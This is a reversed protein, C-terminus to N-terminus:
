NPLEKDITRALSFITKRIKEFDFLVYVSIIFAFVANTLFSLVKSILQPLIASFNPLWSKTDNLLTTIQQFIGAVLINPVNENIEVYQQYLWNLGSIMSNILETTKDYVMPVVMMLIGILLMLM